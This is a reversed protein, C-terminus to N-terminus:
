FIYTKLNVTILQFGSPLITIWEFLVEKIPAIAVGRNDLSIIGKGNANRAM